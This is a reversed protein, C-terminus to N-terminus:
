KPPIHEQVHMNAWLPLTCDTYEYLGNHRAFNTETEVKMDECDFSDFVEKIRQNIEQGYNSLIYLGITHLLDCPYFYKIVGLKVECIRTLRM